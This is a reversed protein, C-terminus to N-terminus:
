LGAQPAGRGFHKTARPSAGNAPATKITAPATVRGTKPKEAGFVIVPRLAGHTPNAGATEGAPGKPQPAKPQPSPNNPDGPRPVDAFGGICHVNIDVWDTTLASGQPIIRYKRNETKTFTYTKSWRQSYFQGARVGTQVSAQQQEGDGRFLVFDVKGPFQTLFEAMLVVPKGCQPRSPVTYLALKLLTTKAATAPPVRNVPAECVIQAPVIGARSFTQQGTGPAFANTSYYTVIMELPLITDITKEGPGEHSACLDKGHQEMPALHSRSMPLSANGWVKDKDELQRRLGILPGKGKTIHDVRVDVQVLYSQVGDVGAEYSIPVQTTASKLRLEGGLNQMALVVPASFQNQNAKIFGYVDFASAPAAGAVFALAAIAAAASKRILSM